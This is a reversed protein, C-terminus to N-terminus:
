ANFKGKFVFEAPGILEIREFVKTAENREFVVGLKGGKSDVEVLHKGFLDNEVAYALATATIGTGCSLTEDEVGREYTCIDLNNEKEVSYVNVNIGKEKFEESYRIEKGFQVIDINKLSDVKKIYHPSGTNVIWANEKKEVKNYLFMQLAIDGDDLIEAQHTGDIAEFIFKNKESNTSKKFFAVASRAGNGCFSKSGDSNYYEMYFDFKESPLIIILGDAGIGFKRDCLKKVEDIDFIQTGLERSDIMIFDNGTAQYKEFKIKQM